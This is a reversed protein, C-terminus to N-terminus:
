VEGRLRRLVPHNRDSIYWDKFSIRLIEKFPLNPWEPAPPEVVTEYVDYGNAPQNAVVRVWRKRAIDKAEMASRHWPNLKGDPGPLGIHWLFLMGQRTISTFFAKPVFTAETALEDRLDPAVLYIEREEKLSIVATELCYADDPHVRVWWSKDPTRHPVITLAKKVGLNGIGTQALRLPGPDFPDPATGNATPDAHGDNAAELKAPEFDLGDDPMQGQPTSAGKGATEHDNMKRM